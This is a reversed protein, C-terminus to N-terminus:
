ETWLPGFNGQAHWCACSRRWVVTRQQESGHHKTSTYSISPVRRLPLARITELGAVYRAHDLDPGVAKLGHMLVEAEDCTTLVYATESNDTRQLKVGAYREYNALCAEQSADPQRGANFEGVRRATMGQVGDWQDPSYGSAATDSTGFQYDSDIYKPKYGQADAQQLFGGKGAVVLLALDVGTSKFRQVALADSSDDNQAVEVAVKYGLKALEAKVARSVLDAGAQDAPRYIGIKKGTLTGNHHAWRIWNKLVSDETPTLTFLFPHSRKMVEETPGDLTILPTKYERAVCESGIAFYAVAVVAFVKEDETMSVCAPRQTDSRIADFTRFVFKIDRGHVPVVNERKWRDYVAEWQKKVDGINFRPGLQKLAGLDLYVVGVKISDDTVGRVNAAGRTGSSSSGTARRAGSSGDPRATPAGSPASAVPGDVGAAEGAALAEEPADSAETGRPAGRSDAGIVTTDQRAPLIVSALLVGLVLGLILGFVGSNPRAVTEPRM